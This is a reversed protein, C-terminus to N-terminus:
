DMEKEQMNMPEGSAAPAALVADAAADARQFGRYRRVAMPILALYFLSLAILMEM